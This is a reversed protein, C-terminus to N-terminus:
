GWLAAPLPLGALDGASLRGDPEIGFRELVAALQRVHQASHWTQRELFDHLPQVGTYVTVQSACSKDPHATWWTRLREKVAEGYQAVDAGSAVSAPAPEMSMTAWDVLGERVTALFADGIRFVHYGMNRISQERGEILQEDLRAAPFQQIYRQAAGLVVLWKQMLVDPPLKESRYDTVGVFKAVDELSQGFVFETGRALVPIKRM